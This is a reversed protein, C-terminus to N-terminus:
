LYDILKVTNDELNKQAKDTDKIGFARELQSLKQSSIYHIQKKRLFAKLADVERGKVFAVNLGRVSLIRIGQREKLLRLTGIDGQKKSIFYGQEILRKMFYEQKSTTRSRPLRIDKTWSYVNTPSVGLFLAADKRTTGNMVLKRAKEKIDHSIKRPM